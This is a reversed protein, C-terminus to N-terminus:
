LLKSNRRLELPTVQHVFGSLGRGVVGDYMINWLTPGLVTGQPVGCFMERPMNQDIIIPRDTLYDTLINM